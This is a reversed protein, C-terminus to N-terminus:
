QYASINCIICAGTEVSRLSQWKLTKDEFTAVLSLLNRSRLWKVIWESHHLISDGLIGCIGFNYISSDLKKTNREGFGCHELVQVAM